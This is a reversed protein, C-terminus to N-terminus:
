DASSGSPFHDLQDVSLLHDPYNPLVSIDVDICWNEKCHMLYVCDLINFKKSRFAVLCLGCLQHHQVWNGWLM